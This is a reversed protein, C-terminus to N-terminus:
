KKGILMRLERRIEDRMQKEPPLHLQYPKTFIKREQQEGLAYRVVAKM